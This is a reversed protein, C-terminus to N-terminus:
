RVCHKAYRQGISVNHKCVDASLHSLVVNTDQRLITHDYFETWIVERSTANNITVLLENRTVGLFIKEVRVNVIFSPLGHLNLWANLLDAVLAFDNTTVTADHDDTLVEAVLLTLSLKRKVREYRSLSNAVVEYLCSIRTTRSLSYDNLGKSRYASALQYM